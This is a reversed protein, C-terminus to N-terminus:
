QSTVIVDIQVASALTTFIPCRTQIGAALVEAEAATPGTVQVQLRMARIKPDVPQGCMGRPDFDAAVLTHVHDLRIQQERAMHECIFTACTSLSALILDVPNIEENPGDLMLPADVVIHHGRLTVLARGPEGSLRAAAAATVLSDTVIM